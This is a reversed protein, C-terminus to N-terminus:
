YLDTLCLSALTVVIVVPIFPTIANWIADATLGDSLAQAAAAQGTADGFITLNM